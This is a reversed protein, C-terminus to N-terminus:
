REFARLVDRAADDALRRLALARRGETELPDAGGVYDAERRTRHEAVVAGEARLRAHVTVGIRWSVGGRSTLVPEDARVEGDIEADGAGSADAGRRALEARLATTVAAGLGPEIARNEFPRVAISRAGGRAVYRQSFGYGCASVALSAAIAAARTRRM